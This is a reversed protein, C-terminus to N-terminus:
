AVHLPGTICLNKLRQRERCPARLWTIMWCDMREVCESVDMKHWASHQTFLVSLEQEWPAKVETVFKSFTLVFLCVFLSSPKKKKKKHWCLFFPSCWGPCTTPMLSCCIFLYQCHVLFPVYGFPKRLVFTLTSTWKSQLGSHAHPSTCIPVWTCLFSLFVCVNPFYKKLICVMLSTFAQSLSFKM